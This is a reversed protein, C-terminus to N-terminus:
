HSRSSVLADRRVFGCPVDEGGLAVLEAVFAAAQEVCVVGSGDREVEEFFFLVADGPPQHKEVRLDVCPLDLVVLGLCVEFVAESEGTVHM